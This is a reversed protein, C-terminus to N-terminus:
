GLLVWDELKSNKENLIKLFIVIIENHIYKRVLLQKSFKPYNKLFYLFVTCHTTDLIKQNGFLINTSKSVKTPPGLKKLNGFLVSKSM